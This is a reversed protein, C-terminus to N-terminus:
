KKLRRWKWPAMFKGAWMGIKKQKAENEEDIYDKSYKRYALAWGNKVMLSSIDIGNVYCTSISRRYRDTTKKKCFLKGSIIIKKLENTAVLGCPYSLGSKDKCKQKMEPTDIGYFRIKESNIIITYGDIIKLPTYVDKSFSFSSNMLYIFIIIISISSKKM